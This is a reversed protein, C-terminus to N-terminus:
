ALSDRSFRSGHAFGRVLREPAVEKTRRGREAARHVREIISQFSTSVSDASSSMAFARLRYCRPSIFQMLLAIFTFLLTEFHSM